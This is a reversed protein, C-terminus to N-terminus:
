FTRRDKMEPLNMSMTPLFFLRKTERTMLKIPQTTMAPAEATQIMMTPLNMAPHPADAMDRM